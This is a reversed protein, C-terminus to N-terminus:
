EKCEILYHSTPYMICRLFFFLMQLMDAPKVDDIHPIVRECEEQVNRPLYDEEYGMVRSTDSCKMSCSM